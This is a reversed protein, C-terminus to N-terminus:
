LGRHLPGQRQSCSCNPKFWIIENRLFWGRNQMEISFRAPIQCLSKGKYSDGLNVWCTGTPKLVRNVEDFVDCLKAIFEQWTPEMGLQGEVGYDRLAWYPPSTMVMDIRAAPIAKLAVMCDANLIIGKM